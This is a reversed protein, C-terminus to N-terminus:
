QEQPNPQPDAGDDARWRGTGPDLREVVVRERRLPVDQQVVATQRRRTLRVEEVLVLEKRTVLREEIVPVVMVDGEHRVAPPQDVVRNVSVRQVDVVDAAMPERLQATVEDVEKRLRVAGTQVVERGVELREETVPVVTAPNQLPMSTPRRM